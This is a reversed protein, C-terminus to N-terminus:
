EMSFLMKLDEISLKNGAQKSGTLLDTAMQLKREQLAKIREEITDSTVFKYIFVDKKQGFRYIRDQAQSELQPNWHLDILLLHNAGVLNLGVGGATLSLLLIQIDSSPRNFDDVLIMRKNVPVKGDLTACKIGEKVLHEEIIKLMSTWQSVVIAKEGKALATKKLKDIVINVKSSPQNTNFIPNNPNMLKSAAANLNNGEGAAPDVSENQIDEEDDNIDMKELQALLDIDNGDSDDIGDASCAEENEIMSKILSVHCCTQRLRLLLLLIQHAKVEGTGHMRLLRKHVKEYEPNPNGNIFKAQTGASYALDSNKEARQHLFQAFLTKSFILIKQYINMEDKSLKVNILETTKEPLTSITGNDQLQQKTRRLMISQIVTNLREQGGASKNDIWKKWIQLDDFPSCKLFKLLAYLDLEKNQVPTGTLCWRRKGKLACVGISCNAKTNRIVHAEDLIIRKWRVAFIGDSKDKDLGALNYTTIVIDHKALRRPKVERNTGHYIHVSLCDRKCHRKIENEWQNILSAPCVVLTGGPYYDRRRKKEYDEDNEDNSSEESESEKKDNEAMEKAKLILSIMTLTKGLGMDDALIGGAPRQSERWLLFALAHKQHPMLEIKLMKPNEEMVDSKPKAQLSQHLTKLRDMTLTKQTQYTEMAQKGGMGAPQVQNSLARLQQWSLGYVKDKDQTTEPQTKPEILMTSLKKEEKALQIAMYAERNRLAAGRDPLTELDLTSLANQTSYLNQQLMVVKNQQGIYENQPVLKKGPPVVFNRSSSPQVQSNANSKTPTLMHTIKTQKLKPTSPKPPQYSILRVDDDPGSSVDIYENPLDATSSLLINNEQIKEKGASKRTQILNEQNSNSVETLPLSKHSLSAQSNNYEPDNNSSKSTGSSQEDYYSEDIELAQSDDNEIQAESATSSNDSNKDNGDDDDDESDFLAKKKRSNKHKILPEEDEDEDPSQEVYYSEDSEQAQSDDNGIQAESATSSNDSNKDNGDDDDDDSDFLAKKKRSNKHKILPEEDEDEDDTQEIDKYGKPLPLSDKKHQVITSSPLSARFNVDSNELFMDDSYEASTDIVDRYTTFSKEM